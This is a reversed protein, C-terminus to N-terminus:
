GGAKPKSPPPKAVVLSRFFVENFAPDIQQYFALTLDLKRRIKPFKEAIQWLTADGNFLMKAFGNLDNEMTSQAYEVLFGQEHLEERLTTSAKKQKVAEVGDGLYKFGSPNVAQWAEANFQKQHNRWLISSFEAHFVGEVHRDTFGKKVEGIKLYVDTQSNTGSTTVVGSYRLEALVYVAKLDAKLVQPPYKKLARELLPRAREIQDESLAEGSALVPAKRWSAPFITADASTVVRVPSELIVREGSMASSAPPIVEALTTAEIVHDIYITEPESCTQRFFGVQLFVENDDRLTATQTKPVVQEGDFWAEVFGEAADRSWLVHVAIDHWRGTTLRGKGSWRLAYPVRTTFQIDEGQAEFAMVRSWSNRSEFYGMAHTGKSLKAPIFVSWGFYRELGEETGPKKPQHQLEIRDNGKREASNSGDIRLAYKGARVPDTVVKADTLKAGGPWQSLDGTEFDGRFLSEAYAFAALLLFALIRFVNM